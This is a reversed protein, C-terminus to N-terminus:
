SKPYYKETMERLSEASYPKEILALANKRKAEQWKSDDGHATMFIIKAKPFQEELKFFTEFGDMRPMKVDLFVLGPKHKKYLSLAEIGDHATIVDFGFFELLTGTTDLISEDDDVVMVVRKQNVPM